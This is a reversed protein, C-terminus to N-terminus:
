WVFPVARRWALASIHGVNWVQGAWTCYLNRSWGRGVMRIYDLWFHGLDKAGHNEVVTNASLFRGKTILHDAVLAEDLPTRLLWIKGETISTASSQWAFGLDFAFSCPDAQSLVLFGSFKSFGVKFGHIRPSKPCWPHTSPDPPPPWLIKKDSKCQDWSHDLQAEFLRFAQFAQFLSVGSSICVSKRSSEQVADWPWPWMVM